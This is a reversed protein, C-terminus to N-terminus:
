PLRGDVRAAADLAEVYDKAEKLGDGSVERREKIANIKQGKRLLELLREDSAKEGIVITLKDGITLLDVEIGFGDANYLAPEALNTFGQLTRMLPQGKQSTPLSIIGVQGVLMRAAAITSAKRIVNFVHM